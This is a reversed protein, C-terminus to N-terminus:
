TRALMADFRLIRHNQHEEGGVSGSDQSGVDSFNRRQVSNCTNIM